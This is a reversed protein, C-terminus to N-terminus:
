TPLLMHFTHRYTTSTINAGVTDRLVCRLDFVAGIKRVPHDPPVLKEPCVDYFLPGQVAELRGMMSGDEWFLIVDM